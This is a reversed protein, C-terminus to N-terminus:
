NFVHIICIYPCTHTYIYIYIYMHTHTRTHTQPNMGVCVYLYVRIYIYIYIYTYIHIYTHTHPNRVLTLKQFWNVLDSGTLVAEANDLRHSENQNFNRVPNGDGDVPVCGEDKGRGRPSFFVLRAFVLDDRYCGMGLRGSNTAFSRM